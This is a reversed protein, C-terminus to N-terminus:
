GHERTQQGVSRIDAPALNLRKLHRYFTAKHVGLLNAAQTLNGGAQAAAWRLSQEDLEPDVDATPQGGVTTAAPLRAQRHLPHRPALEIQTGGGQEPGYYVPGALRQQDYLHLDWSGPALYDRERLWEDFARAGIVPGWTEVYVREMVNRLERVNGPWHYQELLRLAEPTLGQVDRSYRRNLMSIFFYALLRLDGERERLAPMHIRFVALRHYLDARFQRAAVSRELPVNTAAIIRVNVRRPQEAGVREIEGNELARLLKAQSRLPMDGIEDLFLTGGDAREFRGRHPKVAGTFAGREHGYLESEFLEENLASCNLAVYPSERRSSALHLAQAVLEKGTGTEGTILAPADAPGYTQIKHFVRQMAASQGVMGLFSASVGPQRSEPSEPSERLQILVAQPAIGWGRWAPHQPTYGTVLWAASFLTRLSGGPDHFTLWYDQVPRGTELVEHALPLLAAALPGGVDELKRGALGEQGHGALRNVWAPVVDVAFGRGEGPAPILVLVEPTMPLLTGHSATEERNVDTV